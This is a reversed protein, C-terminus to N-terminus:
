QYPYKKGSAGAVPPFVAIDDGDSVLIKGTDASYRDLEWESLM